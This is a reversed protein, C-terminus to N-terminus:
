RVPTQDFVTVDYGGGRKPIVKFRTAVIHDEKRGMFKLEMNALREELDQPMFAVFHNPTMQLGLAQIVGQVSHPKDDIWYIRQIQSLDENLLEAPRKSLDRVISYDRPNEPKPIALIAGLSELQKLYDSGSRTDFM